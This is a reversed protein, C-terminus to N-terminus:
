ICYDLPNLDPSNPLWHDKDIFGPFNDHCWQQTLQHIHPKAGDHQFAWDNGFVHNGYKLAVPLVEEIYRAHDVTGEDFIVLPFVCKSCVGLWVMVKQPFSKKQLIGGKADAEARNVAWIRDSQTNYVGDIDFMKEGSFLIKVTEQKRFNTRIWNAFTKRKEKHEQTLAPEVLYKYPRCGLDDRLIRRASTRSIDLELALKRSSVKNEQLKKKVKNIAGKTRATRPRGPSYRLNISGTEDIMGCWRKITTLSLIGNLDRFIKTPYDGNQHKLIILKQLDESKM